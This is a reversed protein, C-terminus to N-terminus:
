KMALKQWIGEAKLDKIYKGIKEQGDPAGYSINTHKSGDDRKFLIINKCAFRTLIGQEDQTQNTTATIVYEPRVTGSTDPKAISDTEVGDKLGYEKDWEEPHYEKDVSLSDYTLLVQNEEILYTGKFYATTTECYGIEVFEKDNIFLVHSSICDYQASVECTTSDLDPAFYYVLGSLKIAPTQIITDNVSPLHAKKAQKDTSCSCSFLSLTLVLFAITRTYLM